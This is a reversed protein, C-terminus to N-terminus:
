KQVHQMQTANPSPPQSVAAGKKPKEYPVFDGLGCHSGRRLVRIIDTSCLEHLSTSFGFGGEFKLGSCPYPLKNEYIQGGKMHFLITQDDIIESRDLWGLHICQKTEGKAKPAEAWASSSLSFAALIVSAIFSSKVVQKM